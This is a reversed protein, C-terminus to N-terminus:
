FDQKKALRVGLFRFPKGVLKLLLNTKKSTEKISKLLFWILNSQLNKYFTYFLPTTLTRKAVNQSLVM